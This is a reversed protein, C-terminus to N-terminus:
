RYYSPNDEFKPVLNRYFDYEVYSVPIMNKVVVIHPIKAGIAEDLKEFFSNYKAPDHKTFWKHEECNDCMEVIFFARIPVTQINGADAKRM